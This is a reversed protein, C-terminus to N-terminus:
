PSLRECLSAALALLAEDTPAPAAELCQWGGGCTAAVAPSIAAVAIGGRDKVLEALRRGARPSHVLVISGPLSALGEPAEIRRAEYVPITMTAGTPLHDRGALHLLRQGPPLGMDRSGGEGVSAIRFGAARALEATAKGVAHAPLSKLKQLEEGAHRVANASTLVVADFKAPDPATWEIPVVSFLPMLRVQLGKAEARAATRSAGPEPRLIVLRRM